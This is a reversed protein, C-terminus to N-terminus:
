RRKSFKTLGLALAGSINIVDGMSWWLRALLLMLVLETEEQFYTKLFLALILERPGVGM